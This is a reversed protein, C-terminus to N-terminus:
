HLIRATCTYQTPGVAVHQAYRMFELVHFRRQSTAHAAPVCSLLILGIAAVVAALRSPLMKQMGIDSKIYKTQRQILRDCAAWSRISSLADAPRRHFAACPTPPNTPPSDACSAPSSTAFTRAPSLPIARGRSM